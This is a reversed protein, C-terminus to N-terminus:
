FGDDTEKKASVPSPSDSQWSISMKVPGGDEDGTVVSKIDKPIIKSWIQTYFAGLNAPNNAWEVLRTLGGLDEFALQIAAKADQTLKKPSDGAAMFYRRLNLKYCPGLSTFLFIIM